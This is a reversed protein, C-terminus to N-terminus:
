ESQPVFDRSRWFYWTAISRYPRWPQARENLDAASPLEPLGFFDRVGARLGFDATPLVDLRGLGFILFMHATWPGIGRVDVLLDTIEDDSMAPFRDLPLSGDLVRRALERVATTKAGSLGACRLVQEPADMVAQPTLSLCGVSEGLRAFISAAAKTSILQSVVARVLVVFSDSEATLRCPGVAALLPKL